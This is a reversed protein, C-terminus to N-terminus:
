GCTEQPTTKKKKDSFVFRALTSTVLDAEM